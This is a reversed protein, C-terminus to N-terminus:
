EAEGDEQGAAALAGRLAGALLRVMASASVADQRGLWDLCANEAFCVWGYLAISVAPTPEIGMAGVIRGVTTRRLSEVIDGVEGDVGLGGQVLVRYIAGHDRVWEVYRTLADGFAREFPVGPEPATRAAVEDRIASVTAVYFGRRGGFYNYLLGKSVGARDAIQAMSFADAPHESFFERGFALLEQRRDEPSLRRRQELM